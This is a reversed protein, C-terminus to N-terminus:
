YNQKLLIHKLWQHAPSNQVRKHELLYLEITNKISKEFQYVVTFNDYYGTANMLFHPGILLHNSSKLVEILISFQSSKLHIERYFGLKMLMTDIPNTFAINDANDINLDLFAYNFCDELLTDKNSALPHKKRAFIVPTVDGLYTATFNKDVPKDIHIAFDLNGTELHIYPDAKASHETLQVMPAEYSVKQVLPLLFAHFIYKKRM